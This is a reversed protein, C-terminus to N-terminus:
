ACEREGEGKRERFSQAARNGSLIYNASLSYAHLDAFSHLPEKDVACNSDKYHSRQHDPNGVGLLQLTQQM